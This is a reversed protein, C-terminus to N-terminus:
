PVEDPDASFEESVFVGGQFTAEIEDAAGIGAVRDRWAEASDQPAYGLEYARSNDWWSAPNDSVGYVIEFVYDATLGVEVLRVLDARSQWTHLARENM